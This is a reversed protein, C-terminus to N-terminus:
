SATRDPPASPASPARSTEIVRRILAVLRDREEGSTLLLKALVGSASSAGIALMVQRASENSPDSCADAFRRVEDDKLDM